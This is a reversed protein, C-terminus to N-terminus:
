NRDMRTFQLQASLHGLPQHSRDQFGAHPFSWRPNSDRGRRWEENKVRECILDFPKRYTPYLSTDDIACNSLVVKLLKAKEAPNQSVYLFHAKNALELIRSADLLRDPSSQELGALAMMVRQEEARWEASKREWFGADIKGDLKDLYAQDLRQRILSLRQQLRQRQERLTQQNRQEDTALSHQISALVDDPIHIDTLVQGLRESLDEERFYPLECKGKFGTCHYYIYRQKKIEATIACGDHACQLLGSFAFEHTQRRPRNVRDFVRQVSEFLEHSIISPHSGQYQKGHWSFEGVYFRNQLLRHVQAKSIRLGFEDRLIRGLELLSRDGTAYLEFMRRVVATNEPHVEITHTATNNRYGLPPRGGPFTGQEAKQRLGKTVEERLNDIYNRALVVKIGHILRDHSRSDKSIIHGEKPLHIEVDLDELVVYDKFNRYLRDTKEALLIRCERHRKLFAVMEGFAKRGAVKATEVDVFERVIQFGQKAAYERLLVQQAPISYGEREQDKSSVRLYIVAPRM